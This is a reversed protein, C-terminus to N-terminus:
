EQYRKIVGVHLKVNWQKPDMSEKMDIDIADLVLPFEHIETSIEGFEFGGEPLDITKEITDGTEKDDAEIVLRMSKLSAGNDGLELGWKTAKIDLTWQAEGSKVNGPYIEEPENYIEVHTKSNRSAWGGLEARFTATDSASESLESFTKIRNM